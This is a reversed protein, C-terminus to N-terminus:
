PLEGLYPFAYWALWAFLLWHALLNNCFAPKRWSRVFVVWLLLLWGVNVVCTVYTFQAGQYHVGDRWEAVFDFITLLTLIMLLALSRQPVRADRGLLGPNWAFFLLSPVLIAAWPFGGPWAFAVLVTLTPFPSILSPTGTLALGCYAPVILALGAALTWYTSKM